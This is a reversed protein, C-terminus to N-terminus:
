NCSGSETARRHLCHISLQCGFLGVSDGFQFRKIRLGSSIKRLADRSRLGICSAAIEASAASLNDGHLPGGGGARTAIVSHSLRSFASAKKLDFAHVSRPASRLLARFVM